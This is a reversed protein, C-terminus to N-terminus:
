RSSGFLKGGPRNAHQGDARSPGLQSQPLRAPDLCAQLFQAHLRADFDDVGGAVLDRVHRKRLDSGLPEEGLLNFLRQETASDIQRDVTQLVHRRIQRITERQRSNGLAFIRAIRQHPSAQRRQRLARAHAGTGQTAGRLQPRQPGIELDFADAAIHVGAQALQVRSLVVGDHQGRGAQAPQTPLIAYRLQQIGRHHARRHPLSRQRHLRACIAALREFNRAAQFM